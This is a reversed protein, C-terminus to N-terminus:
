GAAYGYRTSRNVQVEIIVREFISLMILAIAPQWYRRLTPDRDNIMTKSSPNRGCLSRIVNSQSRIITRSVATLSNRSRRPAIMRLDRVKITFGAVDRRVSIPHLIRDSNIHPNKLSRF